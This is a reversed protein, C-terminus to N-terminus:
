SELETGTVRRFVEALDAERIAVSRVVAGAAGLAGLVEPLAAQGRSTELVLPDGDSVISIGPRFLGELRPPRRDVEIEFRTARGVSALLEAVRGQAAVRGEHLFVIRDALEPLLALDHSAVVVTGRQASKLRLVQILAERSPQDLGVFPEDLLTLAPRHALAEVLLLKRRAGFSYESVPRQAEDALGLMDMHEAVAAEAEVRRLGAARAFFVANRVGSLSEFHAEEEGAYGLMVRGAPSRRAPLTLTGSLATLEGALIRLLTSKGAGNRGVLAVIEGLGIDLDVGELVPDGHGYRYRLGQAHV